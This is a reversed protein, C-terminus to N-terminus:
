CLLSRNSLYIPPSGGTDAFQIRSIPMGSLHTPDFKDSAVIFIGTYPYTGFGVVSTIRDFENPHPDSEFGCSGNQGDPQCSHNGMDADVGPIHPHAAAACNLCGAGGQCSNAMVGGASFSFGILLILVIYLTRRSFVNLINLKLNMGSLLIYFIFDTTLWLIAFHSYWVYSPNVLFYVDFMSCQVGFM